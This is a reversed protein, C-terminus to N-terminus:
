IAFLDTKFLTEKCCWSQNPIMEKKCLCTLFLDTHRAVDLSLCCKNEAFTVNPIAYSLERGKYSRLNYKKKKLHYISNLISDLAM